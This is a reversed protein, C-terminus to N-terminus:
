RLIENVRDQVAKADYGANTLRTRRDSGTGWKGDIVERAIEDTTKKSTPISVTKDKLLISKIEKLEKLIEEMENEGLKELNLFEIVSDAVARAYARQGKESTIIDHDITNDMFGGEVLVTPIDSSVNLITFNAFKVGRNRLGTYRALRPAILNAIEVDKTSPKVHCYVETGTHNNGWKIERFLANHHISIFLDPRVSNVTAVRQSLTTETKGTVDDTRSVEVNYEKLYEVIYNCVNNNLTWERIDTPTRKGPTYFYHGADLLLKNM